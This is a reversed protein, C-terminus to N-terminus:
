CETRETSLREPPTWNLQPHNEALQRLREALRRRARHLLVRVGIQTKQMVDAIEAIELEQKYRLWLVTHLDDGMKEAVAWLWDMPNDDDPEGAAHLITDDAVLQPRKKRYDSIILRYAITFLWNKLAYRGDFTHLNLYARLFTEQVIDEADQVRNTKRAAFEALPRSYRSVIAEFATRDGCLTSRVLEHDTKRVDQIM